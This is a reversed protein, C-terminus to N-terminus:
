EARPFLVVASRPQRRILIAAKASRAAAAQWIPFWPEARLAPLADVLEPVYLDVERYAGRTLADVAPGFSYAALAPAPALDNHLAGGYM